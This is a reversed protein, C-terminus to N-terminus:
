KYEHCHNCYNCRPDRCVRYQYCDPCKQKDAIFEGRCAECKETHDREQRKVSEEKRFMWAM